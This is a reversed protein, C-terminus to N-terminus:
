IYELWQKYEGQPAYAGNTKNNIKIFDKKTLNLERGNKYAKLYFLFEGKELCLCM